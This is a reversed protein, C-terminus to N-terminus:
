CSFSLLQYLLYSFIGNTREWGEGNHPQEYPLHTYRVSSFEETPATINHFILDFMGQVHVDTSGDNNIDLDQATFVSM